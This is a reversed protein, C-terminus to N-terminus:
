LEKKELDKIENKNENENKEIVIKKNRIKEIEMIQFIISFIIINFLITLALIIYFITNLSLILFAMYLFFSSFLFTIIGIAKYFTLSNKENEM